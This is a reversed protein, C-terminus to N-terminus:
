GIEKAASLVEAAHGDVKVKRWERALRGQGDILFTSREIGMFERGYLKKMQIVDYARCLTEDQDSILEFPFGCKSKFNEHSKLSDKSVGIIECGAKQFEGYLRKFDQGELTCGPTNDKPYFYLVVKKGRLGDLSVTKGSTAPLAFSPAAQGVMDSGKAKSTGQPAQALKKSTKSAIKKTHKKAGMVTSKQPAKKVTSKKTSKKTTKAASKPASKSASKKAKAM